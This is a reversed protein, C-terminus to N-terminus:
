EDEEDGNSGGGSSKKSSSSSEKSSEEDEEDEEGEEDESKSSSSKSKSSSSSSSGSNGGSNQTNEICVTDNSSCDEAAKAFMNNVQLYSDTVNQGSPGIALMHKNAALLAEPVLTALVEFRLVLQGDEGEGNSSDLVNVEETVLYCDNTTTWMVKGDIETGSYGQCGASEFHAVGAITGSLDISPLENGDEDVTEGDAHYWESFRPTRWVKEVKIDRTDSGSSILQQALVLEQTDLGNLYATLTEQYSKKQEETFSSIDDARTLDNKDLWEDYWTKYLSDKYTEYIEQKRRLIESATYPKVTSDERALEAQTDIETQLTALEEDLEAKVTDCGTKSRLWYVYISEMSGSMGNEEDFKMAETFVGGNSNTEVICREPIENGKEDVYVGYDYKVLGISKKFAELVRYDIFPEVGADAQGEMRLTGEQLNVNLESLTVKDPASPLMVVLFSFVRSLMKKQDDITALAGLQDKITLYESLGNFSSIKDSMADIRTTQDAITLKQGGTISGLVMAGGGFIAVIIIAAFLVINRLRMAKLMETKIAPVLNIEFMTATGTVLDQEGNPGKSFLTKPNFDKVDMNKAKEIFAALGSKPKEEEKPANEDTPMDNAEAVKVANVGADGSEEEPSVGEAASSGGAAAPAMAKAELGQAINPDVEGPKAEAPAGEESPPLPLGGPTTNGSEMADVGPVMGGDEAAGAGAAEAEATAPVQGANAAAALDAAAANLDPTQEDSM